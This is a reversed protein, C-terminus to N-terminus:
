TGRRKGKGGRGLKPPLGQWRYWAAWEADTLLLGASVRTNLARMKEEEKAAKVKEAVKKRALPSHTFADHAALQPPGLPLTGAAVCSTVAAVAQAPGLGASHHLAVALAAKVLLAEHRHFPRQRRRWAAGGALDAASM